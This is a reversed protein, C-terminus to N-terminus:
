ISLYKFRRLSVPELEPGDNQIHIGGIEILNKAMPKIGNIPFYTNMLILSTNRELQEITPSNPGFYKKVIEDHPKTRYWYNLKLYYFAYTNYLRWLFGDDQSIPIMNNPSIAINEPNGITDHIWPYLSTTSVFVIPIKWLHALIM